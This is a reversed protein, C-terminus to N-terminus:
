RGSRADPQQRTRAGMAGPKRGQDASQWAQDVISRNEAAARPDVITHNDKGLEWVVVDGIIQTIEQVAAAYDTLNRQALDATRQDGLALATVNLMSYSIAAWNFATDDDRLDKSVGETRIKDIMGAAKGLMASGAEKIPNGATGGIQQQYAQLEDRHRKVMDHFRQVAQGAPGFEKAMKRQRDLAEEIHSEVAVMDGVYDQITKKSKDDMTAEMRQDFSRPIRGAVCSAIPMGAPSPACVYDQSSSAGAVNAGAPANGGLCMAARHADARPVDGDFLGRKGAKEADAVDRRVHQEVTSRSRAAEGDRRCSQSAKASQPMGVM